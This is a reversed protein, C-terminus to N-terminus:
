NKFGLFYDSFDMFLLLLLWCDFLSLSVVAVVVEVVAAAVVVVAAAAAVVPSRQLLPYGAPVYLLQQSAGTCVRDLLGDFHPLPFPLLSPPPFFPFLQLPPPSLPFPQSPRSFPPPSSPPPTLSFFLFFFSYSFSSSSYCGLVGLGWFM